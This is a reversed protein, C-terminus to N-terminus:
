TVPLQICCLNSFQAKLCIYPGKRGFLYAQALM